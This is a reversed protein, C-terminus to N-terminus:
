PPPVPEFGTPPAVFTSTLAGVRLGSAAEADGNSIEQWDREWRPHCIRPNM